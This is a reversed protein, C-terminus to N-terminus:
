LKSGACYWDVTPFFDLLVCKKLATGEDDIFWKCDECGRVTSQAGPLDCLMNLIDTTKKYEEGSADSYSDAQIVGKVVEERSILNKGM